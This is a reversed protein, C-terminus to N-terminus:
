RKSVSRVEAQIIDQKREIEIVNGVTAQGRVLAYGRELVVQPDYQKLLKLTSATEDRFARLREAIMREAGDLMDSADRKHENLSASISPVISRVLGRSREILERRDPVLLQAANTPTAARLDAVMDALTVDIEHGVGVLTPIRSGAIARVLGEDNFAALDDADGGGRVIVIVEPPEGSANFYDIARVIQGPANIGQVLTHATEVRMGGWRGNLIKIFDTYGAAQTSSIVGIHTPLEPLARKREPAFLGEAELKRKLLEFGRKISGEGVPQVSQVSVSFGWKDSLRPRGVVAVVMGDELPQRVQYTSGFFDVSSREDKLKFRVWKEQRVNYGSVEGVIVVSPMAYDFTQNVLGVFDTVSLRIEATENEM